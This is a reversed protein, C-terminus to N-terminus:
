TNQKLFNIDRLCKVFKEKIESGVEQDWSLNNKWTHQLQLKPVLTVACTFGIPDFIRHATSLTNRKAINTWEIEQVKTPLNVDLSDSTGDWLFGLVNSKLPRQLYM